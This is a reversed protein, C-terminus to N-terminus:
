LKDIIDRIIMKRLKKRLCLGGGFFIFIFKHLWFLIVFSYFSRFLRVGM